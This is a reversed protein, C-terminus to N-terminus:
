ISSAKVTSFASVMDGDIPCTINGRAKSAINLAANCDANIELGCELCQFKCQSKRNQKDCYGCASCTRSTNHPDVAVVRVGARRAKYEIFKRLQDFAWNGLEFRMARNMVSARERIGTLDELAIAKGSVAASEVVRRSVNHNVWRTFRSQRRRLRQLRRKASKSGHKKATHQLGAKLKRMRRRLSRIAEGSYQKGESDSAIQVIGLDIGLFDITEQMPAEPIDCVAMLYFEGGIHCLDSEGKQTLLMEKQLEGAAFPIQMRGAVTWLSIHGEDTFFNLIRSDYAISGTPRFNRKVAKDLKYSDTVKANCRIVLQSALAFEERINHYCAHHLDFQKFCKNKWAYESLRNCAENAKKLTALLAQKQEPSALLKVQAVLKVFLLKSNKTNFIL